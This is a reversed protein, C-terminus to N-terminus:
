SSGGQLRFIPQEATEWHVDLKRSRSLTVGLEEPKTPIPANHDRKKNSNKQNTMEVSLPRSHGLVGLSQYENHCHVPQMADQGSSRDPPSAHIRPMLECDLLLM